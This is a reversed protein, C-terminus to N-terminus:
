DEEFEAVNMVDLWNFWGILAIGVTDKLDSESKVLPMAGNKM